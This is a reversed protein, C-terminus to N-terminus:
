QAALRAPVHARRFISSKTASHCPCVTTARPVFWLRRVCFSESRESRETRESRELTTRITGRRGVWPLSSRSRAVSHTSQTGVGALHSPLYRASFIPRPRRPSPTGLPAPQAPRPPRAAGIKPASIGARTAPAGVSRVSQESRESREPTRIRASRESRELTTRVTGRRRVWTRSRLGLGFTHISHRCGGAALAPIERLSDTATAQTIVHRTTGTAGAQAPSGRRNESGLHRGEYSASRCFTRITRTRVNPDHLDNPGNWTTWRASEPRQITQRCGGAALAPIERLSDTATAQTIVHRTTGTAGAQAPSGRRNESGLHRGEYGRESRINPDIM